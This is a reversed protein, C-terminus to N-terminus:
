QGRRPRHKNSDALTVIADEVPWGTKIRRYLNTERIVCRPDRAWEPISKREGFAEFLRAPTASPVGERQRGLPMKPKAIAEEPDWGNKIRRGILDNSVRARPDRGWEALCKTEGFATIRPSNKRPTYEGTHGVGGGKRPPTTIADEHSWGKHVRRSISEGDVASRPDDGWEMATKTEGFATLYRARSDRQRRGKQHGPESLPTSIAKEADWGHAIRSQITGKGVRARPDAAWEAVPKSEGFAEIMKWAPRGTLKHSHLPATMAEQLDWNNSLRNTVSHRSVKRRPDDLWEALTKTEGFADLLRHHEFKYNFKPPAAIILEHSAGAWERSRRVLVPSGVKCRPDRSWEAALKTEGWATLWVSDHHIMPASLASEPKIGKRIRICFTKYDVKMRPDNKWEPGSKTEGFATVPPLPAKPNDATMADEPSMGNRLRYQIAARSVRCRPDVSWQSVTKTDGWATVLPSVYEIGGGAVLKYIGKQNPTTIALEPDMGRTIRQWLTMQKVACRPDRSWEGTGKTEGFATILLRPGKSEAYEVVRPEKTIAEEATMGKRMRDVITQPNVSCRADRAWSLLCKSEGFAEIYRPKQPPHLPPTTLAKEVDWKLNIRVQITAAQVVSRADRAWEAVSKSEGFAEYLRASRGRSTPTRIAEEIPMGRNLRQRLTWISVACRSDAAWEPIAKTEGFAEYLHPSKTRSTPTAMAEEIPMGGKLRQRLTWVSVACRPDAAWEPISKTDGFAEILEGQRRIGHAAPSAGMTLAKEVEMGAGLRQKLLYASVVCRRDAAWEAFTKAEGFASLPDNKRTWARLLKLQRAIRRM